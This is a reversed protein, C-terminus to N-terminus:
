ALLPVKWVRLIVDTSDFLGWIFKPYLRGAKSPLSHWTFEYNYNSINWISVEFFPILVWFHSQVNGHMNLSLGIHRDHDCAGPHQALLLMVLWSCRDTLSTLSGCDSWPSLHESICNLPFLNLFAFTNILPTLNEPSDLVILYKSDFIFVELTVFNVDTLHL